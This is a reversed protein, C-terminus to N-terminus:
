ILVLYLSALTFLGFVTLLGNSNLHRDIKYVFFGLLLAFLAVVLLPYTNINWFIQDADDLKVKIIKRFIFDRGIYLVDGPQPVQFYNSTAVKFNEGVKTDFEIETIEPLKMERNYPGYSCKAKLVTNTQWQSCILISLICYTLFGAFVTNIPNLIRYLLTAKFDEVRKQENLQKVKKYYYLEEPSLPIRPKRRPKEEQM